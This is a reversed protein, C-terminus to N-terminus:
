GNEEEILTLIYTIENCKKKMASICGSKSHLYSAELRLESLLILIREEM